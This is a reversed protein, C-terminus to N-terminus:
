ASPARAFQDRVSELQMEPADSFEDALNLLSDASQDWRQFFERLRNRFAAPEPDSEVLRVHAEFREIAQDRNGRHAQRHEERRETPGALAHKLALRARYFDRDASVLYDLKLVM